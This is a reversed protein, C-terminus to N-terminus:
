AAGLEAGAELVVELDEPAGASPSGADPEPLAHPVADQADPGGGRGTRGITGVAPERLERRLWDGSVSRRRREAETAAAPAGRLESIASAAAAYAKKTARPHRALIATAVKFELDSLLPKRPRGGRQPFTELIGRARLARTLARRSTPTVDGFLARGAEVLDVAVRWGRGARLAQLAM